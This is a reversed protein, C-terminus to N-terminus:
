RLLRSSCVSLYFSMMMIMEEDRVSKFMNEDRPKQTSHSELRLFFARDKYRKRSSIEHCGKYEEVKKFGRTYVNMSLEVSRVRGRKKRERKREGEWVSTKGGKSVKYNIFRRMATVSTTAASTTPTTKPKGGAGKEMGESAMVATECQTPM